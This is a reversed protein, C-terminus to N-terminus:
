MIINCTNKFIISKLLNDRTGDAERYYNLEKMKVYTKKYCYMSVKCSGTWLVNLTKAIIGLNTQSNM